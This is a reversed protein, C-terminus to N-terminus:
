IGKEKLKKITDEKEEVENILSKLEKETKELNKKLGEKQLKLENMLTREIDEVANKKEKEKM